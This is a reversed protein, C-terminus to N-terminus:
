STWNYRFGDPDAGAVYGMAKLSRDHPKRMLWLDIVQGALSPELLKAAKRFTADPSGVLRTAADELPALRVLCDRYDGHRYALALAILGLFVLEEQGERIALSAMREAYGLM